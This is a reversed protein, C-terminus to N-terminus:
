MGMGMGPMMGMGMGGSTMSMNPMGMGMGPMMGMGMGSNYGGGMGSSSMGNNYTGMGGNYGGMMSNRPFPFNPNNMIGQQMYAMQRPIISQSVYPAMNPMMASQFRSPFNWPQIQSIMSQVAGPQIIQRFTSQGMRSIDNIRNGMIQNRINNRMQYVPSMGNYMGQNLQYLNQNALAMAGYQQQQQPLGRVGQWVVRRLDVTPMLSSSSGSSPYSSGMGMSPMMGMGGSMSGMGMSPMMGMGGSMGGMGMSPMMGMGGSMSGMGMSPMMGSGAYTNALSNPNVPMTFGSSMGSSSNMGIQNASMGSNDYSYMDNPDEWGGALVSSATLCILAAGLVASVKKM